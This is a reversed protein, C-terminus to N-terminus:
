WSGVILIAVRPGLVYGAIGGLVAAIPLGVALSIGTQWVVFTGPVLAADAGWLAGSKSDSLEKATATRFREIRGRHAKSLDM